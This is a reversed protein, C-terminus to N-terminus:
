VYGSFPNCLAARQEFDIFSLQVAATDSGSNLWFRPVLRQAAGPIDSSYRRTVSLKTDLRTLMMWVAAKNSTQWIMLEYVARNNNTPFNAGLDVTAATTSGGHIFRWTTQTSDFSMGIVQTLGSPDASSLASTSGSYGVFGRCNTSLTSMCFVFRGFFGGLGDSNGRWATFQNIYIEASEGAGSGATTVTCRPAISTLYDTVALTTGALTGVVTLGSADAGGGSATVGVGEARIAAVNLVPRLRIMPERNDLWTQPLPKTGGTVKIGYWNGTISIQPEESGGTGAGPLDTLSTSGGYRTFTCGILELGASGASNAILKIDHNIPRRFVCSNFVINCDSFSAGQSSDIIAGYSPQNFSCRTFSAIMDSTASINRMLVAARGSDFDFGVDSGWSQNEWNCNVAYIGGNAVTMTACNNFHCHTLYVDNGEILFGFNYGTGDDAQGSNVVERDQETDCRLNHFWFQWTSGTEPSNKPVYLCGFRDNSGILGTARHTMKVNNLYLNRAGWLKVLWKVGNDESCTISLNRWETQAFASDVTSEIAAEIASGDYVLLSGHLENGFAGTFTDRWAVGEWTQCRVPTLRGTFRINGDPFLLKAAGSDICNQLATTNDTGTTGEKTADAKVGMSLINLGPASIILEWWAGDASQAKGAWSPESAARKYQAGGKDGNTTYGGTVLYEVSPLITKTAIDVYTEVFTVSQFAIAEATREPTMLVNDATGAEAEGQTAIDDPDLESFTVGDGATWADDGTKRVIGTTALASLNALGGEISAAVQEALDEPLGITARGGSQTVTVGGSGAVIIPWKPIVRARVTM